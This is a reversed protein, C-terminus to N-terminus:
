PQEARYRMYAVAAAIQDSTLHSKGGKPPMLGFGNTAHQILTEDNQTLRKSWMKKNGIIPAGNIGQAHCIKCNDNVVQQGLERKKDQESKCASFLFTIMLVLLVPAPNSVNLM